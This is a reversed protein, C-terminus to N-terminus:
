VVYCGYVRCSIVMEKVPTFFQISTGPERQSGAFFAAIGRREPVIATLFVIAM